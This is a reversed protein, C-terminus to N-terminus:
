RKRDESIWSVLEDTSVPKARARVEDLRFSASRMKEEEIRKQICKRIYESWNLKVQKMKKKLEKSVKVTVVNVDGM